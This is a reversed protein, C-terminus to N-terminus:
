GEPRNTRAAQTRGAAASRQGSRDQSATSHSGRSDQGGQQPGTANHQSRVPAVDDGTSNSDDASRDGPTPGQEDHSHPPDLPHRYKKVNRYWDIQSMGPHGNIRKDIPRAMLVKAHTTKGDAGVVKRWRGTWMEVRNSRWPAGGGNPSAPNKSSGEAFFRWLVGRADVLFRRTRLVVYDLPTPNGAADAILSGDHDTQYLGSHLDISDLIDQRQRQESPKLDYTQM